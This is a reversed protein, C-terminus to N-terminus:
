VLAEVAEKPGLAHYRTTVAPEPFFVMGAAEALARATKFGAFSSPSEPDLIPNLQEPALREMLPRAPSPFRVRRPGVATSAVEQALTGRVARYRRM